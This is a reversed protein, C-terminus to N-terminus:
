HRPKLSSVTLDRHNDNASTMPQAVAEVVVACACAGTQGSVVTLALGQVRQHHGPLATSLACRVACSSAIAAAPMPPTSIVGM